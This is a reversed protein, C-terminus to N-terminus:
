FVHLGDVLHQGDSLRRRGGLDDGLLITWGAHHVLSVDIAPICKRCCVLM